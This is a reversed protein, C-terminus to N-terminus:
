KKAETSEAKEIASVADQIQKFCQVPLDLLAKEIDEPDTVSEKEGNEHETTIEKTMGVIKVREANNQDRITFKAKLNKMTIKRRVKATLEDKKEGEANQYEALFDAGMLNLVDDDNIEEQAGVDISMNGTIAENFAEFVRQPMWDMITVSVNECPKVLKIIM